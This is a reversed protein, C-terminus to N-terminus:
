IIHRMEEKNDGDSSVPPLNVSEAHSAIEFHEAEYDDGGQEEYEQLQKLEESNYGSLKDEKEAQDEINITRDKLSEM